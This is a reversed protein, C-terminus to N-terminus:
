ERGAIYGAYLRHLLNAYEGYESVLKMEISGELYSLGELRAEIRGLADMVDVKSLWVAGDEFYPVLEEVIWSDILALDSHLEDLADNSSGKPFPCDRWERYM